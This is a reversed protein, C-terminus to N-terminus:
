LGSEATRVLIADSSPCMIVDDPAAARVRAMEDALLTVGTASSTGFRLLSAGFGYRSRQKEYLALLDAPIRKAIAERDAVATDREGAIAGLAADRDAEAAVRHEELAELARTSESLEAEREELREMVTLEIDELDSRRKGLAALEQELAAVDKSSSSAQLRDSDRTMRAEVVEVDAEIRRLELEVDELAGRRAAADARVGDLQTLITAVAASEPLSKERHALQAILTDLAQLDLLLAQDEPAAKM